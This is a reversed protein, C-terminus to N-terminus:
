ALLIRYFSLLRNSNFLLIQFSMNEICLNLFLILFLFLDFTPLLSMIDKLQSFIIDITTNLIRVKQITLPVFVLYSRRLFELIM